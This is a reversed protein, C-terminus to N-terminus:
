RRQDRVGRVRAPRGPHRRPARGRPELRDRLPRPGLPVDADRLDRRGRLRDHHHRPVPVGLLKGYGLENFSDPLSSSNIQNGGAWSADLGRIVYLTGLTVVLSPVRCLTVIAGNVVGCALGIGAGALIM